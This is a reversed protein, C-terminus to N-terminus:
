NAEDWMGGEEEVTETMAKLNEWKANAPVEVVMMMIYSGGEMGEHLCRRAEEKAEEVTGFALVLRNYNGMICVRTTSLFPSLPLTPAQGWRYNFEGIWRGLVKRAFRHHILPVVPVIDPVGLRLTTMFREKKTM